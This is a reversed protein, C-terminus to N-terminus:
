SISRRLVKIIELIISSDKTLASQDNLYIRYERKWTVHLNQKKLSGQNIDNKVFNEPLLAVGNGLIALEKMFTTSTSEAFITPKINKRTFVEDIQKRTHSGKNYLIFPIASLPKSFSRSSVPILDEYFTQLLTFNKPVRYNKDIVCIAADLLGWQLQLLLKASSDIVLELHFEESNIIKQFYTGSRIAANDFMGITYSPVLSSRMAPKKLNEWLLLIKNGMAVVAKGDTTLHLHKGKRVLLKTGLEKELRQMSQSLASQTIFIKEAAKTLNGEKAVLLFRQLEEIM